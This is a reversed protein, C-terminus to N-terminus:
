QGASKHHFATEQWFLDFITKQSKNLGSYFNITNVRAGELRNLQNQMRLIHHRLHEEQHAIKEPTTINDPVEDQWDSVLKQDEMNQKKVDSLVGSSWTNWAPLQSDDLDLKGKLSELRTETFRTIDRYQDLNSSVSPPGFVGAAVDGILMLLCASIGM